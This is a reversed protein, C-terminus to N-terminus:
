RLKAQRDKLSNDQLSRWHQQVNERDFYIESIEKLFGESEALFDSKDAWFDSKEALNAMKRKKKIRKRLLPEGIVVNNFVDDEKIQGVQENPDLVHNNFGGPFGFCYILCMNVTQM